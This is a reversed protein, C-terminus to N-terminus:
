DSLDADIVISFSFGPHLAILKARIDDVVKDPEKEDFDLVLDFSVAKDDENVYYGHLQLVSPYDKLIETIDNKIKLCEDNSSNTAYIGVTLIINLEQYVKMSIKNSLSQIEKATMSDDVEIHVSAIIKNPGYNNIVLDYAGYVSDFSSVIERLKVATEKDARSGIIDDVASLLIEIGSKIIFCGILLGLFAEINFSTTLAVIAAILTGTSLLADTIADTGSAKLAGSSVKKGVFRFYLGLLVKALISASLIIIAAYNFASFDRPSFWLNDGILSILSKCSEIVAGAGAVLVITAIILSTVYEIRGYGYPHKKDPRKNALKTGIITILSSLADALNNLADSIISVSGVLLGIIAKFAVLFINGIIGIISTRVITKDRTLQTNEM